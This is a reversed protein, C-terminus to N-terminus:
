PADKGKDALAAAIALEIVKNSTNTFERKARDNEAKIVLLARELVAIRKDKTAANMTEARKAAEELAKQMTRALAIKFERRNRENRQIFGPTDHLFEPLAWARDDALPAEPQQAAESLNLIFDRMTKLDVAFTPESVSCRKAALKAIVMTPETMAEGHIIVAGTWRRGFHATQSM